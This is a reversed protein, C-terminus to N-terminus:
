RAISNRRQNPYLIREPFVHHADGHGCRLRDIALRQAAGGRRAQQALPRPRRGIRHRETALMEAEIALAAPAVIGGHDRARRAGEGREAEGGAVADGDHAVGALLPHDAVEGRLREAGDDVADIGRRGRRLDLILHAVAARDDEDGLVLFVDVLDQREGLAQGRQLPDDHEVVRRHEGVRMGLQLRIAREKARDLLGIEGPELLPCPLHAGISGGEDDIGRAGGAVGLARQHGVALMEGRGRVEDVMIGRQGLLLVPRDDVQREAVHEAAVHRHRQRQDRAEDRMEAFVRLIEGGSQELGRGGNQEGHRAVQLFEGGLHQDSQEVRGAGLAHGGIERHPEGAPMRAPAPVAGGMRGALREVPEAARGHEAGIRLLSPKSLSSSTM